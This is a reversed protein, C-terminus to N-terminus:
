QKVITISNSQTNLTLLYTGATANTIIWKNDPDGATVQVSNVALDAHNTSPRYFPAGFDKATGIKFEGAVFAGKYTFIFPNSTSVTMPTANDLSWGGPTADGILWLQTYPPTLIAQNVISITNNHLNVIIKYVGATSATIQWKNDPDGANVQMTVASLDQHNTTPRYFPAGFDKATAIKFEGAVLPGTYTFIFHDSSSQSLSTAKDFSWGGKTADGILLLTDYPPNPSPVNVISITNNRLNITVMYYGATASTIQWKNDPDGANLQVITASLAPHNIVPRYFPANYDNLTAIKFEGAVFLGTYTFLFKDSKSETMPTLTSLGWGGPTADGILWLQSFPVPPFTTVTMKIVNSFFSMTSGDSTATVLRLELDNPTNVPLTSLLNNLGIVTFVREVTDGGIKVDIPKAFNNGKKDIEIIYVLKGTLGNVKGPTWNITVATKSTDQRTLIITSTSTSLTPKVAVSGQPLDIQKKCSQFVMSFLFLVLISRLMFVPKQIQCLGPIINRISKM